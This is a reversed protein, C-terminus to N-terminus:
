GVDEGGDCHPCYQGEIVSDYHGYQKEGWVYETGYHVAVNTNCNLCQTPVGIWASTVSDEHLVEVTDHPSLMILERVTRERWRFRSGTKDQLVAAEFDDYNLLGSM